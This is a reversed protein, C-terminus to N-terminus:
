SSATKRAFPLLVAEPLCSNLLLSHLEGFTTKLLGKNKVSMETFDAQIM